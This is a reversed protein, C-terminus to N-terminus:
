AFSNKIRHAIALETSIVDDATVISVRSKPAAVFPVPDVSISGDLINESPVYESVCAFVPTDVDVNVRPLVTYPNISEALMAVIGDFM